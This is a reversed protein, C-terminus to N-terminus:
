CIKGQYPLSYDPEGVWNSSSTLTLHPSQRSLSSFCHLASLNGRLLHNGPVKGVQFHIEYDFPSLKCVKVVMDCRHLSSFSKMRKFSIDSCRPHTPIGTYQTPIGNKQTPIGTDHTPIGTYLVKKLFGDMKDESLM